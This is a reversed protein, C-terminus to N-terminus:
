NGAKEKLEDAKDKVDDAFKKANDKADNMFGM